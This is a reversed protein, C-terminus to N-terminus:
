ASGHVDGRLFEDALVIEGGETGGLALGFRRHLREVTEVDCAVAVVDADGRGRAREQLVLHARHDARQDMDAFAFPASVIEGGGEGGAVARSAALDRWRM